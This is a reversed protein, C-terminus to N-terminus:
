HFRALLHILTGERGENADLRRVALLSQRFEDAREYLPITPDALFRYGVNRATKGWPNHGDM